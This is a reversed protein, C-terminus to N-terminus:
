SADDPVESKLWFWLRNRDWTHDLLDARHLERKHREPISKPQVGEGRPVNHKWWRLAQAVRTM